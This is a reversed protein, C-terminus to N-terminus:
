FKNFLLVIRLQSSVFGTASGPPGVAGEGEAKNKSWVSALLASFIKKFVVEGGGAGM